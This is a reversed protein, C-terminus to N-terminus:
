GDVQGAALALAVLTHEVGLKESLTSWYFAWGRAGMAERAEASMRVFEVMRAALGEVDEPTAALGAKANLILDKAEGEAGVLIPRGVALYSQIKSPITIAFLPDRVLHVLLVNAEAYRATAEAKGVAPLIRISDSGLTTAFRKLEDTQAGGGFLTLRIRPESRAALDAAKMVCQLGQALGFNGGYVIEFRDDSREATERESPPLRMIPFEETWNRIVRIKGRPVNREALRRAIGHSQSVILRARLYVFDCIGGLIRALRQTGQMGSSAVSDPWLDQIEIVFPRGHVACFLAASAGVTIPPHYVYVVDYRRGFVLGWLLSTAFFSLYNLTRGISSADHSPWLFVRHVTVGDIVERRYPRLRHGPYLRGGPYNPFGTAVEVDHGHEMLARVFRVGKFAPEPDFWQTLFLVRM